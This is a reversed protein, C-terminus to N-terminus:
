IKNSADFSNGWFARLDGAFRGCEVWKAIRWWDRRWAGDSSANGANRLGGDIAGGRGMARRKGGMECDAVLRAAVRM